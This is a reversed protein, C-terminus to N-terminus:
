YVHHFQDKAQIIMWNQIVLKGKLICIYACIIVHAEKMCPLPQNPIEQDCPANQLFLPGIQLKPDFTIGHQVEM